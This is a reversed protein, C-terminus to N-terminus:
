SVALVAGGRRAAAAAIEAIESVPQAPLDGQAAM